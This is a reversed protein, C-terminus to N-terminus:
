KGIFTMMGNDGSYAPAGPVTVYCIILKYEAGNPIDKSFTLIFTDALGGKSAIKVMGEKLSNKANVSDNKGLTAIGKPSVNMTDQVWYNTSKVGLKVDVNRDYNIQIQNPSIQELKVLRPIPFQERSEQANISSYSYDMAPLANVISGGMFQVIVFTCLALFCSVIRKM